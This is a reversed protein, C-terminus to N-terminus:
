NGHGDHIISIVLCGIFAALQPVYVYRLNVKKATLINEYVLHSMFIIKSFIKNSEFLLQFRRM